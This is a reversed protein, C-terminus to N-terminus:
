LLRHVAIALHIHLGVRRDCGEREESPQCDVALNPLDLQMYRVELGTIQGEPADVDVHGAYLDRAAFQELM